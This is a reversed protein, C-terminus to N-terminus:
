ADPFTLHYCHTPVNQGWGTLMDGDEAGGVGEETVRTPEGGGGTPSGSGVNRASSVFVFLFLFSLSNRTTWRNM